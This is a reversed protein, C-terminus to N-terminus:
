LRSGAASSTRNTESRVPQSENAPSLLPEAKQAAMRLLFARLEEGQLNLQRGRIAITQFPAEGGWVVLKKGSALIIDARVEHTTEIDDSFPRAKQFATIFEEVQKPSATRSRDSLQIEL